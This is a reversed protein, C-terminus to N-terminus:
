GIETALCLKDYISPHVQQHEIHAITRQNIINVARAPLSRPGCRLKRAQITPEREDNERRKDTERKKSWRM